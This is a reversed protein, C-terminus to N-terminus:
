LMYVTRPVALVPLEVLGRGHGAPAQIGQGTPRMAVSSSSGAVSGTPQAMGDASGRLHCERMTHGQRGCFFVRVQLGVVNGLIPSVM